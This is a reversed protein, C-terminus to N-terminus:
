TVPRAASVPRGPGVQVKPPLKQVPRELPQSFEPSFWYWSRM